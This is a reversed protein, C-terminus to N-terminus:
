LIYGANLKHYVKGAQTISALKDALPKDALAFVIIIM